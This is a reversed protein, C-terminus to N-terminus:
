SGFVTARLRRVSYVFVTAMSACFLPFWSELVVVLWNIWFLNYLLWNLSFQEHNWVPKQDRFMEILILPARAKLGLYIEHYCQIVRNATLRWTTKSWKTWSFGSEMTFTLNYVRKSDSIQIYRWEDYTWGLKLLRLVIYSQLTPSNRVIQRMLSPSLRSVGTNNDSFPNIVSHTSQM